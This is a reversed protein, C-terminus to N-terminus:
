GGAPSQRHKWGRRNTPRDSERPPVDQGPVPLPYFNAAELLLNMIEVDNERLLLAAGIRLVQAETPNRMGNVLRSITDTGLGSLQALRHQSLDPQGVFRRLLGDFGDDTLDRCM